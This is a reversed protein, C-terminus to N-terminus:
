DEGYFTKRELNAWLVTHLVRDVTGLPMFLAVFDNYRRNEVLDNGAEEKIETWTKL